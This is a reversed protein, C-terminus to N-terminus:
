SRSRASEVSASTSEKPRLPWGSLCLRRMPAFMMFFGRDRMGLPNWQDRMLGFMFGFYIPMGTLLRFVSVETATAHLQNKLMCATQIDVLYGAPSALYLFLTLWGFYVFTQNKNAL